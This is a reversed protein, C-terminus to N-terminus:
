NLMYSNNGLDKVIGKLELVSLIGIIYKININTFFAIEENTMIGKEEIIDIVKKEDNSLNGMARKEVAKPLFSYEELVDELETTPKAGFKILRNTGYSNPSNINGPVAFIQRGQELAHDVTTLTGSKVGAEIVIIGNSIASIIRNRQVFHHPLTKMGPKFESILLNGSEVIEKAYDINKKPYINDLSTGLVGITKGKNDTAGKHSESDIGLAFGSVITIGRKALGTAFYNAAYKGYQSPKRSGIIAITFSSLLEIDGKYYILYCPEPMSLLFKPFSPDDCDLYSIGQEDMFKLESDLRNTVERIAASKKEGLLGEIKFFNTGIDDMYEKLLLYDNYDLNAHNAILEFKGM